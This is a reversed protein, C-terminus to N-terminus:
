LSDRQNEFRINMNPGRKFKAASGEFSWDSHRKFSARQPFPAISTRKDVNDFSRNKWNNFPKKVGNHMAKNTKPEGPTAWKMSQNNVCHEMSKSISTATECGGLNSPILRKTSQNNVAHNLPAISITHASKGIGLISPGTRKNSSINVGQEMCKSNTNNSFGVIHHRQGNMFPNHVDYELSEVSSTNANVSFGSQKLKNLDITMTFKTEITRGNATGTDTIDPRINKGKNHGLNTNLRNVETNVFSEYRNEYHNGISPKNVLYQDKLLKFEHYLDCNSALLQKELDRIRTNSFLSVDTNKLIKILSRALAEDYPLICLRELISEAVEVSFTRGNQYMFDTLKIFVSKFRSFNQSTAIVSMFFDCLLEKDVYKVNYGLLDDCTSLDVHNLYMLVNDVVESKLDSDETSNVNIRVIFDIAMEVLIRTLERRMCEEVFCVGYRRRLKPSARMLIYEQIFSEESLAKLSNKVDSVNLYIHPFPCKPKQCTTKLNFYCCGKFVLSKRGHTPKHILAMLRPINSGLTNKPANHSLGLTNQSFNGTKDEYILTNERLDLNNDSLPSYVAKKKEFKSTNNPTELEISKNSIKTPQYMILSNTPPLIPLPVYEEIESVKSRFASNKRCSEIETLSEAFLSLTDEDDNDVFSSYNPKSYALNNENIKEVTENTEVEEPICQQVGSSTSVLGNEHYCEEPMNIGKRENIIRGDQSNLTKPSVPRSIRTSELCENHNFYKDVDDIELQMIAQCLCCLDNEDKLVDDRFIKAQINKMNTNNSEVNKNQTLKIKSIDFKNINLNLNQIINKKNLTRDTNRASHQEYTNDVLKDSSLGNDLTKQMVTSGSAVSSSSNSSSSSSSSSSSTSSSSLGLSSCTPLNEIGIDDCNETSSHRPFDYKTVDSCSSSTNSLSSKIDLFACQKNTENATGGVVKSGRRDDVVKKSSKDEISKDAVGKKNNRLLLENDINNLQLIPIKDFFYFDKSLVTVLSSDSSSSIDRTWSKNSRAASARRTKLYKNSNMIQDKSDTEVTNNTEKKKLVGCNKKRSKPGAKAVKGSASINRKRKNPTEAKKKTSAVNDEKSEQKTTVNTNCDTESLTPLTPPKKKSCGYTRTVVPVKIAPTKRSTVQKKLVAKGNSVPKVNAKDEKLVHEVPQKDIHKAKKAFQSNVVENALFIKLYNKNLEPINYKTEEEKIDGKPKVSNDNRVPVKAGGRKKVAAGKTAASEGNVTKKIVRQRKVVPKKNTVPKKVEKVVDKNAIVDNTSNQVNTPDSPLKIKLKVVSPTKLVPKVKKVRSRPKKVVPKKPSRGTKRPPM